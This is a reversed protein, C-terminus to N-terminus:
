FKFRVGAKYSRGLLDYPDGGTIFAVFAFPPPDKDFLNTVNGYLTVVQNNDTWIDYSESLDAYIQAPFQNINVSNPLTPSYGVQGPGIMTADARIDSTYRLQLNSVLGDLAYTINM